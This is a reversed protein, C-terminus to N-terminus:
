PLADTGVRDCAPGSRLQEGKVDFTGDLPQM